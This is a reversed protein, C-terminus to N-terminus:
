MKTLSYQLFPSSASITKNFLLFQHFCNCSGSMTREGSCRWRAWLLLPMKWGMMALSPMMQPLQAGKLFSQWGSKKKPFMFAIKLFFPLSELLEKRLIQHNMLNKSSKCVSQQVVLFLLIIAVPLTLGSVISRM